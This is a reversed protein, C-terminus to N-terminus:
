VVDLSFAQSSAKTIHVVEYIPYDLSPTPTCFLNYAYWPHGHFLPIKLVPISFIPKPNCCTTREDMTKLERHTVSLFFPRNFSWYFSNLHRPIHFLSISIDYLIRFQPLLASYFLPIHPSQDDQYCFEALIIAFNMVFNPQGFNYCVQYCFEASM